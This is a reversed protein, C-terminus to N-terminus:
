CVFVVSKEIKRSIPRGQELTHDYCLFERRSSLHRICGTSRRDAAQVRARQQREARHEAEPRAAAGLM